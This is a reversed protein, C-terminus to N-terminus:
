RENIQVAVLEAGIPTANLPFHEIIKAKVGQYPGEAFVWIHTVVGNENNKSFFHCSDYSGLATTIKERGMYTFQLENGAREQDYRMVSEGPEMAIKDIIRPKPFIIIDHEGKYRTETGYAYQYGDTTDVFLSHSGGPQVFIVETLKKKAFNQNTRIGKYVTFPNSWTEEITVGDKYLNENYCSASSLKSPALTDTTVAKTNAMQNPLPQTSCGLLLVSVFATLSLQNSSVLMTGVRSTLSSQNFRM